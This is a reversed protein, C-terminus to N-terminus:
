KGLVGLERITIHDASALTVGLTIVIAGNKAKFGSRSAKSEVCVPNATPAALVTPTLASDVSGLVQTLGIQNIFSAPSSSEYCVRIGTVKFDNPLNLATQLFSPGVPAPAPTAPPVTPVPALAAEVVLGTLNGPASNDSPRTTLINTDGSQLDFHNVWMVQGNRGSKGSREGDKAYAIGSALSLAFVALLTALLGSKNFKNVILGNM